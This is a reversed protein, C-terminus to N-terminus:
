CKYCIKCPTYNDMHIKEIHGLENSCYISNIGVSKIYRTCQDCPRSDTFSKDHRSIKVVVLTYKKNCLRTFPRIKRLCDIEAHLSTISKGRFCGRDMQNYGYSLVENKGKILLAIHCSKKYKNLKIADDIYQKVINDYSMNINHFM